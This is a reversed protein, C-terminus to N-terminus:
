DENLTGPAATSRCREAAARVAEVCELFRDISSDWAGPDVVKGTQARVDALAARAQDLDAQLLRALGEISPDGSPPMSFNGLTDV